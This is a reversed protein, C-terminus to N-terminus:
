TQRPRTKSDDKECTGELKKPVTKIEDTMNEVELRGWLCSIQSTKDKQQRPIKADM